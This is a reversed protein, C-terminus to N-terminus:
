LANLLQTWQRRLEQVDIELVNLRIELEALKAEQEDFVMPGFDLASAKSLDGTSAAIARYLEELPGMDGAAVSMVCEVRM